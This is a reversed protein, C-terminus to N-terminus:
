NVIPINANVTMGPKLGLVKNPMIIKIKFVTNEKTESPKPIKQLLNPWM